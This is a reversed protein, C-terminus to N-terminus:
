AFHPTTLDKEDGIMGVSGEFGAAAFDRRHGPM